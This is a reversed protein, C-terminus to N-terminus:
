SKEKPAGYGINTYHEVMGWCEAAFEDASLNLPWNTPVTDNLLENRGLVENIEVAAQHIARFSKAIALADLRHKQLVVGESALQNAMAFAADLGEVENSVIEDAESHLGVYFKDALSEGLGTGDLDTILVYYGAETERRWAMCGGGTHWAEFGAAKCRTTIEDPPAKQSETIKVVKLEVIEAYKMLCEGCNVHPSPVRRDAWHGSTNDCRPCVLDFHYQM